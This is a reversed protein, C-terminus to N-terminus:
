KKEKCKALGPREHQANLYSGLTKPIDRQEQVIACVWAAIQKAEDATHDGILELIKATTQTTNAMTM